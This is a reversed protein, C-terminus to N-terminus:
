AFFVCKGPAGCTLVVMTVLTIIAVMIEPVTTVNDGKGLGLFNQAAVVIVSAGVMTVILGTVEPPFLFRLRTMIRSLLSELVGAFLTMGLLLSVGGTQVALLSASMYSPGCVQPCLYGSGVPGKTLAQLIVGIGAALVSMSVLVRATEESGGVARILVVPFILAIAVTSLHQLGLVLSAWVPPHDDVGYILNDPKAPM